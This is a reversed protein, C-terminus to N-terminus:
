RQTNLPINSIWSFSNFLLPNNTQQDTRTDYEGQSCSSELIKIKRIISDKTFNVEIQFKSTENQLSVQFRAFIRKNAQAENVFIRRKSIEGGPAVKEYLYVSLTSVSLEADLALCVTSSNQVRFVKSAWQSSM